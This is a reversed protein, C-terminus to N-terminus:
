ETRLAVAPNAKAARRAPVYSALAASGTLLMVVLGLVAPDRPSVGHLMSALLQALPLAGALGLGAGVAALVRGQGLVLRM